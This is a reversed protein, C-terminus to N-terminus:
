RRDRFREPCSQGALAMQGGSRAARWVQVASGKEHQKAFWTLSITRALPRSSSSHGGCRGGDGRVVGLTTCLGLDGPRARTSPHLQQKTSLYEHQFFSADAEPVKPSLLLRRSLSLRYNTPPM